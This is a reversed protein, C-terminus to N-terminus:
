RLDRLLDPARGPDDAPALTYPADRAGPRLHFPCPGVPRLPAFDGGTAAAIAEEVRHNRPIVAPNAARMVEDPADETALRDRRRAGLRRHPTPSGAAAMGEATGRFTRTFDAGQDAM